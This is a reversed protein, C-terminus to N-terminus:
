VNRERRMTQRISAQVAPNAVLYAIIDPAVEGRARGALDFLEATKEETLELKGAILQLMKYSPPNRRDKEIDCIYVTSVGIVNAIDAQRLKKEERLQRLLSGFTMIEGRHNASKSIQKTALDYWLHYTFELL